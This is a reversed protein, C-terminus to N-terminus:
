PTPPLPLHFPTPAAHCPPPSPPPVARVMSTAAAAFRQFTSAPDHRACLPSTSCGGVPFRAVYAFKGGVGGAHRRGFVHRELPRLVELEDARRGLPEVRRRLDVPRGETAEASPRRAHLLPWARWRR